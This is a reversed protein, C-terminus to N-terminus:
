LGSFCFRLILSAVRESIPIKKKQRSAEGSAAASRNLQALLDFLIWRIRLQDGRVTPPTVTALGMKKTM